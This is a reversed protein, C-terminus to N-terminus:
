FQIDSDGGGEGSSQSYLGILKMDCYLYHNGFNLGFGCITVEEKEQWLVFIM